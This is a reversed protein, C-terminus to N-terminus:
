LPTQIAFVTLLHHSRTLQPAHCVWIHWQQHVRQTSLSIEQLRLAASIPEIYQLWLVFSIYVAHFALVYIGDRVQRNRVITVWNM